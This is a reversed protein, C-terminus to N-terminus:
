RHIHPSQAPNKRAPPANKLVQIGFDVPLQKPPYCAAKDCAQYKLQGRVAYKAAVVGALPRVVVGIDFGGSYVSLKEDPAFEFSMEQGKPYTIRGIVIDTPATLRLSTPILFEATPTNSNVHYGHEVEFHLTVNGAKGRTVNTVGADNMKVSPPRQQSFEQALLPVCLVAAIVSTKAARYRM